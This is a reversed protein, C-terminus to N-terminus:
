YICGMFQVTYHVLRSDMSTPLAGDNAVSKGTSQVGSSTNTLALLPPFWPKSIKVWIFPHVKRRQGNVVAAIIEEEDVREHVVNAVMEKHEVDDLRHLPAV